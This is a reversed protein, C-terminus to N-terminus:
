TFHGNKKGSNERCIKSFTSLYPINYFIQGTGNPRASIVFIYDGTVIKGVRGFVDSHFIHTNYKFVAVECDLQTVLPSKKSSNSLERYGM